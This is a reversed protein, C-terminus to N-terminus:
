FQWAWSILGHRTGGVSLWCNDSVRWHIGPLLTMAPRTSTNEDYYFRGMAQIFFFVGQNPDKDQGFLPCQWAMGYYLRRSWNEQWGPSPNINQSVFGQLATGQGLDHFWSVAPCFITPGNAVGGNQLGTPTYALLNLCLSTKGSDFVQYQSYVRTYGIGGPNGPRFLDFYPNDSGFAIQLDKLDDKELQAATPDNAADDDDVIGFPTALFGTPMGFMRLRPTQGPTSFEQDGYSCVVMDAVPPRRMLEEVSIPLVQAQASSTLFIGLILALFWPRAKKRLASM